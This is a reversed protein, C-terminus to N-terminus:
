STLMNRIDFHYHKATECLRKMSEHNYYYSYGNCGPTIGDREEKPPNGLSPNSAIEPPGPNPPPNESGWPM